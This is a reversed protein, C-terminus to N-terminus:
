VAIVKIGRERLVNLQAEPAASDTILTSIRELPALRIPGVQRFKSSDALVILEAAAGILRRDTEVEQMNTGTLGHAMDLGYTGHFIKSARLDRLSEVTLHGLLSFESHRLWGGLVIVTIQPHQALEHAVTIVNTIVTLDTKASLYPLM